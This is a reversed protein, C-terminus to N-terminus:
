MTESPWESRFGWSGNKSRPAPKGTRKILFQDWYERQPTDDKIITKGFYISRDPKPPKETKAAAPQTYAALEAPQTPAALEPQTPAALSAAHTNYLQSRPHLGKSTISFRYETALHTSAALHGTEPWTLIAKERLSMKARHVTSRTLGLTEAIHNNSCHCNGAENTRDILLFWVIRLEAASLDRRLMINSLLNLRDQLPFAKLPKM